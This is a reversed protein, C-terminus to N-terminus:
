ALAITDALRTARGHACVGDADALQEVLYDKIDTTGKKIVCQLTLALLETESMGYPTKYSSSYIKDLIKTAKIM